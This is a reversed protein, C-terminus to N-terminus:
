RNKYLMECRAKVNNYVIFQINIEQSTMPKGLFSKRYEHFTVSEEPINVVMHGLFEGLVPFHHIYFLLNEVNKDLSPIIKGENVFCLMVIILSKDLKIFDYKYPESYSKTFQMIKDAINYIHQSPNKNIM